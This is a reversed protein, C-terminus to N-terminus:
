IPDLICASSPRRDTAFWVELTPTAPGCLEQAKTMAESRHAADIWAAWTLAGADDQLYARFTSM